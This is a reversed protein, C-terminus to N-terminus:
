KKLVQLTCIQINHVMFMLNLAVYKITSPAILVLLLGILMVGVSVVCMRIKASNVATKIAEGYNESVLWSSKHMSEFINIAFYTILVSLIVLMAFYSMGVQLRLIATLSMFGLVGLLNALLVTIASAGNYRAYAFITAILVILLLSVITYVYDSARTLPKVSIHESVSDVEVKLKEAVLKNVELVQEANLDKIYRVVYKTDDGEGYIQVSDFKGGYSNVIEGIERQHTSYNDAITENITVSFEKYGAVEFNGNMGFIAFVLIGILLFALVAIIINKNAKFYEKNSKTFDRNLMKVEKTSTVNLVM